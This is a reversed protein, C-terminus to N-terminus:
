INLKKLLNNFFLNIYLSMRLINLLKKNQIEQKKSQFYSFIIIFIDVSISFLVSFFVFVYFNFSSQIINTLINGIYGNAYFIVFGIAAIVILLKLKSQRM